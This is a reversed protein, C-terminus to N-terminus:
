KGLSKRAFEEATIKGPIQNETEFGIQESNLGNMMEVWAEVNKESAFNSLIGRWEAEPVAVARVDRELVKAFAAAFDEPSYSLGALEKIQVGETSELMADAVIRGIDEAAIHPIKRDLPHHFSPLIGDTKATEVEALWNEMFNPARVFTTPIGSNKLGEELLHLTFINGTGSTLHAGISSLVVIKELSSGAFAEHLAAINKETEAFMDEAQYNPPNMLYLVKGGNFAKKLAEADQLDAVAIEAGLKEFETGKERGRVIVRVPLDKELLTKAVISGTQGTAGSVIYM